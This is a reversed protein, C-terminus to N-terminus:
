HLQGESLLMVDSCGILTINKASVCKSPVLFPCQSSLIIRYNLIDM